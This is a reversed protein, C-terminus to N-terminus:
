RLIPAMLFIFTVILMSVLGITRLPKNGIDLVRKLRTTAVDVKLALGLFLVSLAYLWAWVSTFYGSYFFIGLSPLYEVSLKLQIISVFFHRVFGKLFLLDFGVGVHFILSQVIKALLLLAGQACFGIGSTLLFDVILFGVIGVVTRNQSMMQIIYRTVLLSIYDPILNLTTLLITVAIIRKLIISPQIIGALLNLFSFIAADGTCVVIWIFFMIVVSAVSAICSLLFCRWSIHRSGFIVDFAAAFTAPWGILKPGLEYTELWKGLATRQDRKLTDEAKSFLLWVGAIITAWTASYALM